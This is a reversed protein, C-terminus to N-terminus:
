AEDEFGLSKLERLSAELTECSEVVSTRESPSSARPADCLALPGPAPSTSALSHNSSSRRPPKSVKMVALVSKIKDAEALSAKLHVTKLFVTKLFVTM